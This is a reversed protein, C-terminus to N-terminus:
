INGLRKGSRELEILYMLTQDMPSKSEMFIHDKVKILERLKDLAKGTKIQAYALDFGTSISPVKEAKWLIMGANLAIVAEHARKGVGKLVDLVYKVNEKVTKGTRIEQIRHVPIGLVEKTNIRQKKGIRGCNLEMYYNRDFVGLEDIYAFGDETATCVVADQIGLGAFTQLSLRLDPHSLGYILTSYEIPCIMAPLAFSLPNLVIMKGGYVRDFKEIMGEISFFGIGTKQFMEISHNVSGIKIGLSALLDASGTVSSTCHSGPKVINAGASAAVIAAPTSINITKFGKKGSGAICIIKEGHKRIENIPFPNLELVVKILSIIEDATPKKVMLGSFLAGLQVDRAIVNPNVLLEYFAQKLLDREVSKKMSLQNLVDSIVSNADM